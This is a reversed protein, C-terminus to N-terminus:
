AFLRDIAQNRNERTIKGEPLETQIGYHYQFCFDIYTRRMEEEVDQFVYACGLLNGILSKMDKTYPENYFKYHIYAGILLVESEDLEFTGLDSFEKMLFAFNQWAKPISKEENRAATIGNQIAKDQDILIGIVPHASMIETIPMSEFTRAQQIAETISPVSHTSHENM